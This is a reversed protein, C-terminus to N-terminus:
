RANGPTAFGPKRCWKETTCRTNHNARRRPKGTTNITAHGNVYSRTASVRADDGGITTMGPHSAILRAIVEKRPNIIRRSNTPRAARLGKSIATEITKKVQNQLLRTLEDGNM